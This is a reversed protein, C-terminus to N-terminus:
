SRRIIVRTCSCTSPHMARCSLKGSNIEKGKAKVLANQLSPARKQKFHSSHLLLSKVKDAKKGYKIALNTIEADRNVLFADMDATFAKKAAANVLRTAEKTAKLANSQVARPRVPIVPQDANRSAFTSLQPRERSPSNTPDTSAGFSM